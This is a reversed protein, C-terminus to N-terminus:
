QIGSKETTIAIPIHCGDIAAICQPVGLKSKFTDVLKDLEEGNQFHIYKHLPAPVRFKCPEQVFLLDQLVFCILLLEINM